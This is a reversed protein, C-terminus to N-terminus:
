LYRSALFGFDGLKLIIRYADCVFLALYECRLARETAIDAPLVMSSVPYGVREYLVMVAVERARAEWLTDM